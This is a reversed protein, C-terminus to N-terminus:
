TSKTVVYSKLKFKKSKFTSIIKKKIQCVKQIRFKLLSMTLNEDKKKGHAM